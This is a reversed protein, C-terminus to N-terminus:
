ASAQPEAKQKKPAPGGFKHGRYLPHSPDWLTEFGPTQRDIIIHEKGEVVTRCALCVAAEPDLATRCTACRGMILSGEVWPLGTNNTRKAAWRHRNQIERLNGARHYENAEEVLRLCEENWRRTAEDIEAETPLKADLIDQAIEENSRKDGHKKAAKIAADTVKRTPIIKTGRNKKQYAKVESALIVEPEHNPAQVKVFAGCTFVGFRRLDSSPTCFKGYGVIAEAIGWGNTPREVIKQMDVNYGEPHMKWIDDMPLSYIRDEPCSPIRFTGLGGMPMSWEEPGVNFIYVKGLDKYEEDLLEVHKQNMSQLESLIQRDVPNDLLSREFRM